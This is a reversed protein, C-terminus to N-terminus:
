GRSRKSGREKEAEVTEPRLALGFDIIKVHWQDGEKRVLVNDPKLDRHLIGRAHAEKMGGAIQRAIAVLHEPSIPGRQRVFQELSVGMFFPMVIYPRSRHRLDAFNCDQVGVITPHNVGSLAHAEAFM